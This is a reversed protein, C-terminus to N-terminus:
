ISNQDTQSHSEDNVEEKYLDEDCEALLRLVEPDIPGGAGAIEMARLRMHQLTDSQQPPQEQKRRKKEYSRYWINIGVSTGGGIILSAAAPSVMCLSILFMIGAAAALTGVGLGVGDGINDLFSAM